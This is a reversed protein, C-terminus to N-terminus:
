RIRPAMARIPNTDWLLVTAQDATRRISRFTTSGWSLSSNKPPWPNFQPTMTSVAAISVGMAVPFNPMASIRLTNLVGIPIAERSIPHITARKPRHPASSIVASGSTTADRITPVMM